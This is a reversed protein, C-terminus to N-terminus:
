RAEKKLSQPDGTRQWRQYHKVCWGRARAWSDCASISCKSRQEHVVHKPARKYNELPTVVELHDPNACSTNRCLHDTHMGAPIEIGALVELVFRHAYDTRKDPRYSFRGYGRPTKGGCWNWCGTREDVRILEYFRQIRDPSVDMNKGGYDSGDRCGNYTFSQVSVFTRRRCPSCSAVHSPLEPEACAAAPRPLNGSQAAAVCARARHPARAVM